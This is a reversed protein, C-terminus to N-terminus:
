GAVAQNVKDTAIAIIAAWDDDNSWESSLRGGAFDKVAVALTKDGTNLEKVYSGIQIPQKLAEVDANAIAALMTKSFFSFEGSEFTTIEGGARMLLHFKKVEKQRREVTPFRLGVVRGRFIPPQTLAVSDAMTYWGDGNGKTLNCYVKQGYDSFGENLKSNQAELAIAIRALISTYDISNAM